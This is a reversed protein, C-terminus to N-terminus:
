TLTLTQKKQLDWSVIGQAAVVAVVTLAEPATAATRTGHTACPLHIRRAGIGPVLALASTQGWGLLRSFESVVMSFRFM